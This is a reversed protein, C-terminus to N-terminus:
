GVLADWVRGLWSKREETTVVGDGDKDIGSIVRSAELLQEETPENETLQTNCMCNACQITNGAVDPDTSPIVYWTNSYCCTTWRKAEDEM